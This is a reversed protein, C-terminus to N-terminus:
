SGEFRNFAALFAETSLESVLELHVAKVSM